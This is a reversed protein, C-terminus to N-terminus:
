SPLRLSVEFGDLRGTAPSSLTLISGVGTMIANAIALGLGSGSAGSGTRVFRDTLRALEEAPVVPGANVVRLTGDITLSVEVPKNTAGHKLANELLNRVLIALADSDISSLVPEAEPLTLRLCGGTVNRFDDLIHALVPTIDRSAESLLGGSEAKALQMLKESLRTLDRLSEEIKAARDRLSGDPVERRLRQLQALSAALPTRLEHASNATFSRESELTRRLRDMLRNVAEAIPAIEVPLRNGEVPSLDGAGRAEIADRYDLIGRLSRRVYLWIGILSVPVLLAVPFLLMMVAEREAQHRYVLPEAVEIYITDSVAATGYIRHTPTTRFGTKPIDSFVALDADHSQLLRNGSADRVLYTLYEEHARLSAVQQTLGPTERNVIEIVALPLMRQATEELSSDLTKNLAHQVVLATAAAAALWLVTMGLTLGVGLRRQLSSTGTM